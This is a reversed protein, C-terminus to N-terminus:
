IFKGITLKVCYNTRKTVNIAFIHLMLQM